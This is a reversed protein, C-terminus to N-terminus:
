AVRTRMERIVGPIVKGKGREDRPEVGYSRLAEVFLAAPLPNEFGAGTAWTCYHDHAHKLVTVEGGPAKRFHMSLWDEFSRKAMEASKSASSVPRLPEADLLRPGGWNRAMEQLRETAKPRGPRKKAPAPAEPAKQPEQPTRPAEPRQDPEPMAFAHPRSRRWALMVVGWISALGFAAVIEVIGAYIVSRGTEIAREGWGFLSAAAAMLPEASTIRKRSDLEGRLKDLRADYGIRASAAALEAQLGRWRNCHDISAQKTADTCAATRAFIADAEARAIDAKIVAEPRADPVLDRAKRAEDYEAKLAGWQDATQGRGDVAAAHESLVYGIANQSSWGLCLVFIAASTLGIVWARFQFALAAGIVMSTKLIDIALNTYANVLSSSVDWAIFTTMEGTGQSLGFKFNAIAAATWIVGVAITAPVAWLLHIM